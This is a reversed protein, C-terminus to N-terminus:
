TIITDTFFIPIISDLDIHNELPTLFKPRDFEFINALSFQNQPIM